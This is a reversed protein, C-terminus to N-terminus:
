PIAEGRPRRGGRSQRIIDGDELETWYIELVAAGRATKFQHVIGPQVEHWDGSQLVTTDVMGSPQWCIIEVEGGICYFGNVKHVHAHKSCYGGADIEIHHVSVGNRTLIHRTAGWVKGSVTSM